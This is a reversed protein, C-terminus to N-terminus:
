YSTREIVAQQLEPSLRTFYESYGGIRIILNQHNEPHKAADILDDRNVCTVQMQM